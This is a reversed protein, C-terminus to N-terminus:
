KGKGKKRETITFVAKCLGVRSISSRREVDWLIGATYQRENRQMYFTSVGVIKDTLKRSDWVEVFLPAGEITQIRAIVDKWAASTKDKLVPTEAVLEGTVDRIRVYPNIPDDQNAIATAILVDVTVSIRGGKAETRSLVEDLYGTDSWLKLAAVREVVFPHTTSNRRLAVLFEVIPRNEWEDFDKVIQAPDFDKDDPDMWSSDPSLGHLLRTMANYAVRPDQCCLLGARDASIESERSWSLFRGLGLTPLINTGGLASEDLKALSSLVAVGVQSMRIHNCKIHGLEHGIVFRLEDPAGEYLNLIGSTLVLIHPSKVGTVYAQVAPSRRIFVQPKAIGLVDACDSVLDDIPKLPKHGEVPLSTSITSAITEADLLDGVAKGLHKRANSLVKWSALDDSSGILPRLLHAYQLDRHTAIDFRSVYSPYRYVSPPPEDPEIAQVDEAVDPQIAPQLEKDGDSAPPTEAASDKLGEQQQRCGILAALGVLFVGTRCFTSGKELVGALTRAM